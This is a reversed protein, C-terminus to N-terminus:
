LRCSQCLFRPEEGSPVTRTSTPQRKRFPGHTRSSLAFVRSQTEGVDRRSGEEENRRLTGVRLQVM